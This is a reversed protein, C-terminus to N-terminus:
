GRSRSHTSLYLHLEIFFLFIYETAVLKRYGQTKVFSKLVVCCGLYESAVGLYIFIDMFKM